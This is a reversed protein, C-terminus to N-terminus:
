RPLMRLTKAAMARVSADPDKLHVKVDEAADKLKVVGIAEIAAARVQPSRDDLAFYLADAAEPKRTLGLGAVAAARLPTKTDLRFICEILEKTDGNLGTVLAAGPRHVETPDVFHQSAFVSALLKGRYASVMQTIARDRGSRPATEIRRLYGILRYRKRAHELTQDIRKQQAPDKLAGKLSKLANLGAPGMRALASMCASSVNAPRTKAAQVLPAISRPDGLLRLVTAAHYSRTNDKSNLEKIFAATSEPRRAKYVAYRASSAVNREKDFMLPAVQPVYNETRNQLVLIAERKIHAHRHQLLKILADFAARDPMPGLAKIAAQPVGYQKDDIASAALQVAVPGKFSKLAKAAALRTRGSKHALMEKLVATGKDGLHALGCAAREMQLTWGDFVLGKIIKLADPHGTKALSAAAAGKVGGDDSKLAELLAPHAEKGCNGLYMAAKAATAKNKLGETLGALAPKGCHGLGILALDKHKAAPDKMYRSLLPAAKQAGGLRFPLSEARNTKNHPFRFRAIREIVKCTRAYDASAKPEGARALALAGLLAALFMAMFTQM